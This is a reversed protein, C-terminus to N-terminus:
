CWPLVTRSSINASPWAMNFSHCDIASSFPLYVGRRGNEYARISHYLRDVRAECTLHRHALYAAGRAMYELRHQNSPSNATNIIKAVEKASARHPLKIIVDELEHWMEYPLDAAIVCGSMMAEAYKRIMKRVISADFICISTRSMEDRYNSYQRRIEATHQARPDYKERAISRDSGFKADNVYGPHNRQSGFRILGKKIAEQAAARVPYIPKWVSGFLRAGTRNHLPEKPQHAPACDLNEM